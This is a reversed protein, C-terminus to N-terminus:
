TNAPKWTRPQGTLLERRLLEHYVWETAKVDIACREEALRLGAMELRNAKRWSSQTMHFKPFPCELWDALYELSKPIDKWGILDRLTDITLKPGLPEMGQEIYAGNLIPLDHRRINHGIVVDAEEYLPRFGQLIRRNGGRRMSFVKADTEEGAWTAAILTVEATPNGDYWYSLPRNEIDFVLM